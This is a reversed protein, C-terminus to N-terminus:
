PKLDRFIIRQQHLYRLANALDLAYSCRTRLSPAVTNRWSVVNKDLTSELRDTIIFFGDHNGDDWAQLDDMPLGRIKLINPHDLATMFAAEVALDTAACLFDKPQELLREQLHKICYNYQGTKENYASAVYAERLAQEEDSCHCSVEPDLRFGKVEYVFSFGGKGLLQGTMIEHRNFLAIGKKFKDIAAHHQLFPSKAVIKDMEPEISSTSRRIVSKRWWLQRNQKVSSSGPVTSTTATTTTTSVKETTVKDAKHGKSSQVREPVIAAASMVTTSPSTNGSVLFSAHNVFFAGINM